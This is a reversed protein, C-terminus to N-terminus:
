TSLVKLIITRSLANFLQFLFKKLYIEKANIKPLEGRIRYIAAITDEDIKRTKGIDSRKKPMIADFGGKRYDSEWCALTGPSYHVERGDPLKIPNQTVRRYYEQKSADPYTNNCAPQILAFRMSAEEIFQKHKKM